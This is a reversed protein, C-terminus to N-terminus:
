AFACGAGAVLAALCVTAIAMPRVEELRGHLVALGALAAGLSQSHFDVPDFTAISFVTREAAWGLVICATTVAATLGPRRGLTRVALWTVGLTGGYGALFHGLYDPRHGLFAGHAAAAAAPAGLWWTWREVPSPEEAVLSALLERVGM